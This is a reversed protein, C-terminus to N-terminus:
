NFDSIRNRYKELNPEPDIVDGLSVIYGYNRELKSYMYIFKPSFILLQYGGKHPEELDIVKTKCKQNSYAIRLVTKAEM